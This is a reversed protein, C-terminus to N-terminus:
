HLYSRFIGVVQGLIQVDRAYIPELSANEPQLRVMDKEKYFRKVTAEEGLLAVVIDGDYAVRQKRVIVYDGDCIGAEIMSDGRVKLMFVERDGVFDAPIPYYEEINEVALIPEGATVRGVLPVNVVRSPQLSDDTAIVMARPKTAERRIYGKKELRRLYSHATSTSKIGLAECIERVSPPYGRQEIFSKLYDLVQRERETLKQGM